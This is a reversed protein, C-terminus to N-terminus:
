EPQYTYLEKVTVNLNVELGEPVTVIDVVGDSIFREEPHADFYELYNYIGVTDVETESARVRPLRVPDFRIDFPSYAPNWGVNLVAINGYAIGNYEGSELYVELSKDTPRSGYALALTNVKYGSGEIFSELYQAQAGIQEQIIAATADKFNPHDKTHNGIDMGQELLFRLKKEASASQKFPNTSTIFFTAELPFDPHTEHFDVLIGVACDPNIEGNELYEFNNLNGDDFTIVVPTYGQEITINGSVYDGLSIPRYGKEYLTNLDKRFNDPTRTWVKEAPGINHYMLIMIKGAENPNLSLDIGNKPDIQIPPEPQNPNPDVPEPNASCAGVLLACLVITPILRKM